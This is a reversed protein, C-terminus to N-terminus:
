RRSTWRCSTACICARPGGTTMYGVANNGAFVFAAVIVLLAHRRFLQVIPMRTRQKRDALEVFVPSEEVRRRVWYGVLILVISLLFPVRWGWAYFAEGPALASM